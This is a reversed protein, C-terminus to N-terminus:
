DDVIENENYDYLKWLTQNQDCITSMAEVAINQVAAQDGFSLDVEGSIKGKPLVVQLPTDGNNCSDTFWADVVVRGSSAFKNSDNTLETYTAFTPCYHVSVEDNAKFVGTPLTIKKTGPDYAFETDSAVSGQAYAHAYDPMGDRAIPYIYGIENGTEGTAKHKLTVTSGDATKLVEHLTVENGNAVEVTEGGVQMALYGLDITGNTANFGAVKNVDFAALKAGDAGEAYVTEQSGTFQGTKLDTMMVKLKATELDFVRLMRLKKLVYKM